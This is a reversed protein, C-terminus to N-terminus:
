DGADRCQVQRSAFWHYTVSGLDYTLSVSSFAALRRGLVIWCNGWSILTGPSNAFM